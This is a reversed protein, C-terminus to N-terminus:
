YRLEQQERGSADIPAASSGLHDRLRPGTLVATATESAQSVAAAALYNVVLEPPYPGERTSFARYSSDSGSAEPGRLMVGQNTVSGNVWSQVLDRVDLESWGWNSNAAIEVGGYATGPSPKSDWTVGSETWDGSIQYATTTRVRNPYDRYGLYYVRLKASQVAANAPLSSLDFKILSRVILGNPNMGDDYGAWMDQTTGANTGPYGELITADAIAVLTRSGPISTPALTRTPTPTTGQVLTQTATPTLVPQPAFTASFSYFQMNDYHITPDRTYLRITYRGALTIPCDITEDGTTIPGRGCGPVPLADSEYWIWAYTLSVLTAPLRIRVVLHQTPQANLYYNDENDGLCLRAQYEQGSVLPGWASGRSDNPEYPDCAALMKKGLVPLFVSKLTPTRTITRTPTPTQTATRTATVTQIVTRTPTPTQTATRTATLTQIVTGTPTPTRTLTTSLTPTQSGSPDGLYLRGHGYMTDMGAPGMDVARGELFSQLQDPNYAPYASLVLAAAGAVHATAPSTGAFKDTTGYSETSVNAFGAIDPKVFGGTEAGGPGNTPGESSYPEQPYPASVDLAAVSMVRPADALNVLSRAHLIEDLRVGPDPAFVELNVARDSNFRAIAFGYATASGTTVYAIQETPSQAPGGDQLDESAAVADWASGNWRLLYLDYDQDVQTWDDWRLSVNVEYGAPIAYADGNGPGFYNINQTANYCHLGTAQPDYYLGGWHAERTVGAATVWLIDANRADQVLDAFEGTGDGPTMNYWGISTSIIDVHQTDKLWAVAEQLDVNTEIKALYLTSDPAIDHIIEACATGHKTTGDVQADSEDDVFNKVTVTTPLDTGLLTSYGEFGGDIIGIKVGAGKYGAAHWAPGNIVALGETTSNGAQADELLVLEAPRRILYVDDDAAVTELANLPLWGQILAADNGVKTVEGGAEIVAQIARQLGAAHTVIQVHVRDGSLRLSQSRASALARQISDEARTAVDALTSDLKPNRLARLDAIPDADWSLAGAPLSMTEFPASQQPFPAAFSHFSSALVLAAMLLLSVLGLGRGSYPMLKRNM